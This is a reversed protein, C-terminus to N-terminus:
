KAAAERLEKQRRREHLVAAAKMMKELKAPDKLAELQRAPDRAFLGPVTFELDEEFTPENTGQTVAPITQPPPASAIRDENGRRGSPILTFMALGAIVVASAIGCVRASSPM